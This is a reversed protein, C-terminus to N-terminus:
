EILVESREDGSLDDDDDNGKSIDSQNSVFVASLTPILTLKGQFTEQLGNGEFPIDLIKELSLLLKEVTLHVCGIFKNQRAIQMLIYYKNYIQFSNRRTTQQLVTEDFKSHQTIDVFCNEFIINSSDENYIIKNSQIVKKGEDLTHIICVISENVCSPFKLGSIELIQIRLVPANMKAISQKKSRLIIDSQVASPIRFIEPSITQSDQLLQSSEYSDWSYKRGIMNSNNFFEQKIMETRNMILTQSDVLQQSFHNKLIELDESFKKQVINENKDFTSSLCMAKNTPIWSIDNRDISRRVYQELGDDDDKDQEWIYIIFFLYNWMNHEHKIHHQFGQSAKDRDFIQKNVGCIFCTELTDKLRLIKAIRLESFTDVTIGRIVNLLVFRISLDFCYYFIWQDNLGQKM